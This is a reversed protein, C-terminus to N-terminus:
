TAELTLQGAAAEEARVPKEWWRALRQRAQAVYEANLEILVAHRSHRLAAVGSTGTGAFPDLIVGPRYDRHGCDSWGVTENARCPVAGDDEM